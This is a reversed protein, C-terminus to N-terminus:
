KKAKEARDAFRRAKIIQNRIITMIKRHNRKTDEEVDMAFWIFNGFHGDYEVEAARLAKTIQDCITKDGLGKRGYVWEAKIVALFDEVEIEVCYTRRTVEAKLRTLDPLQPNKPHKAKPTKPM